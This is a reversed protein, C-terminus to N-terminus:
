KGYEKLKKKMLDIEAQQSSVIAKCLDKVEPDQLSAKQCMLIASAHHPIMSRLFEKDAVAIQQRIFIILAIFIALSSIGIVANLKKNTYMSKMIVLEILVMPITMVGAMYIQNINQYVNGWENVMIYMLIYMSIFSLVTMILLNFYKM